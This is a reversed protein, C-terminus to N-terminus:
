SMAAKDPLLPQYPTQPQSPSMVNLKNFWNFAEGEQGVERPCPSTITTSLPQKKICIAVIFCLGRPLLKTWLIDQSLARRISVDVSIEQNWSTLRKNSWYKVFMPLLPNVEVHTMTFLQHIHNHLDNSLYLEGKLFHTSVLLKAQKDLQLEINQLPAMCNSNFM